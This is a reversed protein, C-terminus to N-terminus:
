VCMKLNGHMRRRLELAAGAERSDGTRRKVWSWVGSQFSRLPLHWVLTRERGEPYPVTSIIIMVVFVALRPKM